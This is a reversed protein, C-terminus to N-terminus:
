PTEPQIKEFTMKPGHFNMTEISNFDWRTKDFAFNVKWQKIGSDKEPKGEPAWMVCCNDADDKLQDGGKIHSITPREASAGERNIHALVVHPVGTENTSQRIYGSNEEIGEWVTKKTHRLTRIHDVVVLEIGHRRKERRVMMRIDLGTCGIPSVLHLHSKKLKEVWKMVLKVQDPFRDGWRRIQSVGVDAMRCALRFLFGDLTMDGEFFLIPRDETIFKKAIMEAMSTKGAGAEAAYVDMMGPAVGQLIHDIAAVGTEIAGIGRGSMIRELTEMTKDSASELMNDDRRKEGIAQFRSEIKTLFEDADEVDYARSEIEGSLDLLQRLRAKNHVERIYFEVHGLTPFSRTLGFVYSEMDVDKSRMFGLVLRADIPLMQTAMQGIAEFIKRNKLDYFQESNLKSLCVDRMDDDALMASLLSIEADPNSPITKM